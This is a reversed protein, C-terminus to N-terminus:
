TCRNVMSAFLSYVSAFAITSNLTKSGVGVREEFSGLDHQQCLLIIHCIHCQFLILPTYSTYVMVSEVILLINILTSFSAHMM